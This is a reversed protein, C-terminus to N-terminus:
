VASTYLPAFGGGETRFNTTQGRYLRAALLQVESRYVYCRVDLKLPVAAGDVIITRESPPVVRQAVYDGRLIEEFTGRTLKDGRYAAKSGYGTAPKFFFRKREAWWTEREQAEVRETRPVSAALVDIVDKPAGAERLWTPDSLAILNRKNAYLAHALPHPSVVAAGSLYAERLVAHAPDALYFDTLRNYVLDVRDHDHWLAGDVLRLDSPATISASIGHRSLLQAFLVFEPYLFQERPADDVIAVRGLTRGPRAHAFADRFTDVLVEGLERGKVPAAACGSMDECCARQARALAVNLAAGGANTNIEILQPGDNGLHFDFGFFVGPTHPDHAAIQPASALAQARFASLGVVTEVARVVEAM